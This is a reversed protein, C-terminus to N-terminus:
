YCSVLYCVTCRLKSLHPLMMQVCYWKFLLLWKCSLFKLRQLVSASTALTWHRITLNPFMIMDLSKDGFQIVYDVHGNANRWITYCLWCAWHRITLNYLMILLDLPTNDFQIVYDVLAPADHWIPYRLWFTSQCITLNSLIIMEMPTDDFQIVYDVRGTAYLWVTYCLLCTWHRITFSSLMIKMDWGKLRCHYRHTSRKPFNYSHM